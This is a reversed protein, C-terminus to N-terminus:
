AASPLPGSIEGLHYFALALVAYVALLMVGELWHTEGDQAVQALVVISIAVAVIEMPTFHLDLPREHGIAMSVFVLLPAVFLAIQIGSGVAITFSLDMKDKMAVVIATSHEAANGVIAVIIVGVFVSSMGLTDAAHELSGVLLEGMIAVAATSVLLVIAATARGWEPPEHRTTPEPKDTTALLGQHTVFTFVLSLLYVGALIFAIEESLFEVTELQAQTLPRSAAFVHYYLTPMILGVTALTLLTAGMSASARNFRQQNYRWGGALMSLGLVLLVNGMISGTISAKVLPYMEPGEVLAVIAIVLEAANGFTANVLGGVGSGLRAALSETARGMLGALPVIALGALGFVWVDGLAFYWAALALPFAVLLGDLPHAALMPRIASKSNSRTLRTM